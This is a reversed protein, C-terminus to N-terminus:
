GSSRRVTSDIIPRLPINSESINKHLVGETALEATLNGIPDNGPRFLAVHWNSGASLFGSYIAPLLGSKVLSSKGSGSSGIVALLRSKGFKQLLDSIEVGRGFFLSDENKEFARLGVFPNVLTSAEAM